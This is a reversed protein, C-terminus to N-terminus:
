GARRGRRHRHPRRPVHREGGLRRAPVGPEVGHRFEGKTGVPVTSKIVVIVDNDVCSAIDKAAQEVYSLDATGDPNSPTGVAIYIVDAGSFGERHNVTFSLRGAQLNKKMLDELGPEYIPSLGQSMKAVKNADVDICTVDHGIEAFCVGTVLGVYGTGVMAIKMSDEGKGMEM